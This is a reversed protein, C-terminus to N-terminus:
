DACSCAVAAMSCSRRSRRLPREQHFDVFGHVSVALYCNAKYAKLETAWENDSWHAFAKLEVLARMQETDCEIM